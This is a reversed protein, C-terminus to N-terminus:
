YLSADLWGDNKRAFFEVFDGEDWTGDAEGEVYIAQEQGRGFIQINRPDTGALQPIADLLAASSIRYVGTNTVPIRFYTQEYNIWENGFPQASGLLPLCVM